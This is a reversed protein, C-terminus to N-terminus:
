SLLCLHGTTDQVAILLPGVVYNGKFQELLQAQEAELKLQEVYKSPEMMKLYPQQLETHNKFLVRFIKTPNQKLKAELDYYSIDKAKAGVVSFLLDKQNSLCDKVSLPDPAATPDPKFNKDKKALTKQEQHWKEEHASQCDQAQQVTLFPNQVTVDLIYEKVSLGPHKELLSKLERVQQLKTQFDQCWQELNVELPM